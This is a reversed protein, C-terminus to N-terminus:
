RGLHAQRLLRLAVGLLMEGTEADGMQWTSDCVPRTQHISRVAWPYLGLPRHALYQAHSVRGRVSAEGEVHGDVALHALRSVHYTRRM